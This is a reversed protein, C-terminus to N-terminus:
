FKVRVTVSPEDMVLTFVVVKLISNGPVKMIVTAPEGAGENARVVGSAQYM